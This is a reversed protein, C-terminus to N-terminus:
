RAPAGNALTVKHCRCNDDFEFALDDGLLHPATTSVPGGNGLMQKALDNGAPGVFFLNVTRMDPRQGEVIQLYELIPVDAWTGFHTTGGASSSLIREGRERASWDDSLDVLDFNFICTGLALLGLLAAASISWNPALYRNVFSCAQVAGVAIWIAWVLYVPGFMLAKDAVAYVLYFAVHGGFLLLLGLHYVPRTRVGHILGALGLLAGLTFFNSTLRSAFRWLEDTWLVQPVAFMFGRFMQGSVMWAFGDLSALDINWYDRAYNLPTDSVYRIPLYLYISAGALLCLAAMALTRPSLSSRDLKVTCLWAFGPTLLVM